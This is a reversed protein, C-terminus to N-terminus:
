DDAAMLAHSQGVHWALCLLFHKTLHQACWTFVLMRQLPRLLVVGGNHLSGCVLSISSSLFGNLWPFVSTGDVVVLVQSHDSSEPLWSISSKGLNLCTSM